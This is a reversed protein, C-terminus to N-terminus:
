PLEIVTIAGPTALALRTGDPHLAAVPTPVHNVGFCYTWSGSPVEPWEALVRGTAPDVLRPHHHLTVLHEGRVLTVGAEFALASRHLWRGARLSWVGVQGPGLAGVDTDGGTGANTGAEKEANTAHEEYATTVAIRDADLWGACTIEGADVDALPAVGDGDLTTPDALADPLSFVSAVGFPHWVWGVALLHNGDPSVSLRSHFVDQPRRPGVTLREGTHVDDIQLENYAKPCHVVVDRGDPLAGVAAPYDFDEAHYYSRDLERVLEGRDLLLAKTGREAYLVRYRGCASAVGRDFPGGFTRFVRPEHKTGDPAWRIPGNEPAVLDDGDWELAPVPKDIPFRLV